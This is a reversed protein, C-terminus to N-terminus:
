SPPQTMDHLFTHSGPSHVCCKGPAQVAADALEQDIICEYKNQKSTTAKQYELFITAANVSNNACLQIELLQCYVQTNYHKSYKQKFHSQIDMNIMDSQVFAKRLKASSHEFAL